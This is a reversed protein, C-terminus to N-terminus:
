NAKSECKSQDASWKCGLSSLDCIARDEHVACVDKKPLPGPYCGRKEGDWHCNPDEALCLASDGIACNVAAASKFTGAGIAVPVAILAVILRRM